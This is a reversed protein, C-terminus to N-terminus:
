PRLDWLVAAPDGFGNSSWSTGAVLGHLDSAFAASQNRSGRGELTMMDGDGTWVVAQWLGPSASCAGLVDSENDISIARSPGPCARGLDVFGAEHTWVFAHEVGDKGSASGVVQGWDNMALAESRGGEPPGIDRIGEEPRWFFARREGAANLSWGAVHGVSNIASAFSDGGGLDGVDSLGEAPTWRFAHVAGAATLSNGVVEGRENIAVAAAAKGGLTDLLRVGQVSSWIYARVNPAWATGAVEGRDNIDVATNSGSDGIDVWLDNRRDANRDLYWVPKGDVDAPTVIFGRAGGSGVVQGRRNIAQPLAYSSEKPGRLRTWNRHDWVYGTLIEPGGPKAELVAAVVHGQSNVARPFAGTLLVVKNYSCEASFVDFAVFCM